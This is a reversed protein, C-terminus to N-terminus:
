SCMKSAFDDNCETNDIDLNKYIDLPQTFISQPGIVKQNFQLM